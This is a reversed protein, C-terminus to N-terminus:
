AQKEEPSPPNILLVPQQAVGHVKSTVSGYVFRSLGSRGRTTMAILDVKEKDAIEVVSDAAKGVVVVPKINLGKKTLKDKLDGLYKEALQQEEAMLRYAQSSDVAAAFEITPPLLPEVVRLLIIEAGTGPALAEVYPISQESLESGDLPLLVKKIGVQAVEPSKSHILLTPATTGVLVKHTVSGLIWRKIGSYGHTTIVILDVNSKEAFKIIEEAANGYVVETSTKIKSAELEKAKNGLYARTPKETMEPPPTGVAFLIIKGKTAQAIARAYPLAREALPSGDLPVLIKQYGM